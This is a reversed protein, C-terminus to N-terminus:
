SEWTIEWKIGMPGFTDSRVHKGGHNPNLECCFSTYNPGTIDVLSQKSTPEFHGPVLKLLPTVHAWVTCHNYQPPAYSDGAGSEGTYSWSFIVEMNELTRTKFYHEGEHGHNKECFILCFGATTNVVCPVRCNKSM